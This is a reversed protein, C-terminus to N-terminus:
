VINFTRTKSFSNVHILYGIQYSNIQVINKQGNDYDHNFTAKFEQANSEFTETWKIEDNIIIKIDTKPADTYVEFLLEHQFNM